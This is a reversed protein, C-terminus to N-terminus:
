ERVNELRYAQVGISSGAPLLLHEKGSGPTASWDYYDTMLRVRVWCEVRGSAADRERVPLWEVREILCLAAKRTAMDRLFVPQGVALRVSQVDMAPM